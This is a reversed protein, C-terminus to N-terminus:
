FVGPHGRQDRRPLCFPKRARRTPPEGDHISRTDLAVKAPDRTNWVDEALRVKQVATDRTFPPFPARATTTATAM